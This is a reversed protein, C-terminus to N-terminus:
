LGPIDRLQDVWRPLPAADLANFSGDRPWNCHMKFTGKLGAQEGLHTSAGRFFRCDICVDIDIQREDIPCPTGKNRWEAM